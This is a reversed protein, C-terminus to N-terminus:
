WIRGVSLPWGLRFNSSRLRAMTSFSPWFSLQLCWFLSDCIGFEERTRKGRRSRNDTNCSRTSIDLYTSDFHSYICNLMHCIYQECIYIRLSSSVKAHLVM